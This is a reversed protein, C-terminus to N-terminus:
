DLVKRTIKGGEPNGGFAVYGGDIEKYDTLYSMKGTMHRSCGSDIVGQDQKVTKRVTKEQQKSKVFEKKVISPRVIKKEIKAQSVDEEEYDSVWEEIILAVKPEEESSMVKCNEVVPKNVFEDTKYGLVMLESKKLDKLLQDNQSKLLKVTELCSKSCTSDNSVKSDSSSSSFAILVYDPGEEAQDSKSSATSVRSGTSVFVSATNVEHKKMQSKKFEQLIYGFVRDFRSRIKSLRSNVQVNGAIEAMLPIPKGKGTAMQESIALIALAFTTQELSALEQHRNSMTFQHGNTTHHHFWCKFIMREEMMAELKMLRGKFSDDELTLTHVRYNEYFNWSKLNWREQNQWLEDEANADFMTRLDGWLVLDVGEPTITKFREYDIIGEKDPVIKLFTKLDEEKELDSEIKKRKSQRKMRPGGKRKKSANTGKETSEEADEKNMSKTKREDEKSDHEVDTDAHAQKRGKKRAKMKVTKGPTKKTDHESAELKVEVRTRDPEKLVEEEKLTDEGAVKKSDKVADDSDMPKFDDIIMKQREYM